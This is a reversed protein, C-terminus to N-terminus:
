DNTSDKQEIWWERINRITAKKDTAFYIAHSLIHWMTVERGGSESKPYKSFVKGSYDNMLEPFLEITTRKLIEEQQLMDIMGPLLSTAKLEGAALLCYARVYADQHRMGEAIRPIAKQKDAKLSNYLALREASTSARFAQTAGQERSVCSAFLLAALITIVWRMDIDKMKLGMINYLDFYIKLKLYNIILKHTIFFLPAFFKCKFASMIILVLFLM